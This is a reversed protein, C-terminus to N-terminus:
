SRSAHAVREAFLPRNFGGTLPRPLCGPQLKGATGPDEGEDAVHGLAVPQVALQQQFSALALMQRVSPASELRREVAPAPEPVRRPLRASMTGTVSTRYPTAQLVDGGAASGQSSAPCERRHAPIEWERTPPGPGLSVMAPVGANDGTPVTATTTAKASGRSREPIPLLHDGRDM